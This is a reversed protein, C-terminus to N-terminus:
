GMLTAHLGLPLYQSVYIYIYILVSNALWKEYSYSSRTAAVAHMM